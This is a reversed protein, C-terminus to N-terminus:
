RPFKVSATEGGGVSFVRGWGRQRRVTLGGEGPHFLTAPRLTPEGENGKAKGAERRNRPIVDGFLSSAQDTSSSATPVWAPCWGEGDRHLEPM